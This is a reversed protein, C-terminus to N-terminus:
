FEFRVGFGLHNSGGDVNDILGFIGSRHHIRFILHTQYVPLPQMSAELLIYNLAQTANSDTELTRELKPVNSAYSIGDGLALSLQHNNVNFLWRHLILANIETHEQKLSHKAMQLEYEWRRNVTPQSFTQAFTVALMYSREFKVKKLLLIEDPLGSDSYQGHYISVSYGKASSNFSLLSLTLLLMILTTKM